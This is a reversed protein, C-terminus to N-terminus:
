VVKFGIIINQSFRLNTVKLKDSFYGTQLTTAPEDRVDIIHDFILMNQEM